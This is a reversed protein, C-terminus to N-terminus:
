CNKCTKEKVYKELWAQLQMAQSNNGFEAADKAAQVYLMACTKRDDEKCDECGCGCPNITLFKKKVEKEIECIIYTQGSVSYTFENGNQGIGYTTLIVTYFGSPYENVGLAQTTLDWQAGYDNDTYTQTVDITATNNQPMQVQLTAQLVNTFLIGNLPGYGTSAGESELGSNDSVKFGCGCCSKCIKIKLEFAMKHIKHKNNGRSTHIPM